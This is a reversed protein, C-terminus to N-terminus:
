TVSVRRRWRQDLRGWSCDVPGAAAPSSPPRPPLPLPHPPPRPHLSPSPARLGGWAPLQARVLWWHLEACLRYTGPLGSPHCVPLHAPRNRPLPRLPPTQHSPLSPSTGWRHDVQCQGWIPVTGSCAQWCGCQKSTGRESFPPATGGRQGAERSPHLPCPSGLRALRPVIHAIAHCLNFPQHSCTPCAIAHCLAIPARIRVPHDSHLPTPLIPRGGGAVPQAPMTGTWQAYVLCFGHLVETNCPHAM